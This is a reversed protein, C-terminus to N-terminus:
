LGIEKMSFRNITEVVTNTYQLLDFQKLNM